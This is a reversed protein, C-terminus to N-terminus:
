EFMGKKHLSRYYSIAFRHAEDRASICANELYSNKHFYRAINENKKREPGKAISIAPVNLKHSRLVEVAVRLQNEGGDIVVLDPLQWDNKFRRELVQELRALDDRADNRAYLSIQCSIDDQAGSPVRQTSDFSRKTSSREVERRGAPITTPIVNRRIKFRRYEDTNKKGDTFVVM